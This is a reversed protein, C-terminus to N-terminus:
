KKGLNFLYSVEYESSRGGMNSRIASKALSLIRLVKDRNNVAEYCEEVLEETVWKPDHFTLAIRERLFNKDERRPFSGGFANEYLGSSGALTLSQIREPHKAAYVLAVHGGLSNGLLHVKEFGKEEIFKQVHEALAPINANLLPLQYIPLSFNIVTFHPEFYTVQKQFNSLAGFLGHLLILIPGQGTQTYEFKNELTFISMNILLLM